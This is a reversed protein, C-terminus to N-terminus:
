EKRFELVVWNNKDERGAFKLGFAAARESILSVDTTFIGSFLIIGGPLLAKCYHQMDELLVNRNINALIVQFARGALLGADGKEVLINQINNLAANEKTNEVSWEDIDIADVSSAGRISALIGLVGTGCGMDLITKDKLDLSWIRRSMLWTTEHHGTGFSMQPQIIIEVPWKGPEAEHFPARIRCEHNVIVPSFNSEWEENWNKQEIEKWQYGTHFESRYKEIIELIKENSFDEAVIYATLITQSEEFSVFGIESLEYILIDRGPLFPEIRFEAAIWSSM